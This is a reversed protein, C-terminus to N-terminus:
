AISGDGGPCRADGCMEYQGNKVFFHCWNAPREERARYGCSGNLTLIGQEDFQIGHPPSTCYVEREGCPCVFIVAEGNKETWHLVPGVEKMPRVMGKEAIKKYTAM